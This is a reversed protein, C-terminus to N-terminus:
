RHAEGHPVCHFKGDRDIADQVPKSFLDGPAGHSSTACGAADDFPRRFPGVCEFSEGSASTPVRAPDADPSDDTSAPLPNTNLLAILSRGAETDGLVAPRFGDARFADDPWEDFALYVAGRFTNVMRVCLRDDPVPHNTSYGVPSGNEYCGDDFGKIAVCVAIMGKRWITM